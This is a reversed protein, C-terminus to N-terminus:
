KRTSISRRPRLGSESTECEATALSERKSRPPTWGDKSGAAAVLEDGTKSVEGGHQHCFGTRLGIDVPPLTGSHESCSDARRCVLLLTRPHRIPSSPLPVNVSDEPFASGSACNVEFDGRQAPVRVACRLILEQAPGVRGEPRLHTSANLDKEM